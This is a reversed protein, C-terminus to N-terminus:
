VLIRDLMTEAEDVKGRYFYLLAFNHALIITTEHNPGLTKERGALALKWMAEAETYQGQHYYLAGFTIWEEEFEQKYDDNKSSVYPLALSSCIKIHQIFHRRTDIKMSKTTKIACSVIRLGAAAMERGKIPNLRERAWSHVLPHISFGSSDKKQSALSFSFLVSVHDEVESREKLMGPLGLFLFDTNIDKNSLFSCLLLLEAAQPDEKQIAEFSIEWTTIVTKQGYQWVGLPPKKNLTTKFNAEFLPLFAYLPKALISLYAGAHDIALPLYGLREVIRRAEDYDDDTINIERAYSKSLLIISDQEEMVNLEWGEGHRSCEPRRSTLIVFGSLSNPFFDSIRFTELDDVNDFVLLWSTNDSRNLWKRM